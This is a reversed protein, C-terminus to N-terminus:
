MNKQMILIDHIRQVSLFNVAPNIKKKKKDKPFKISLIIM